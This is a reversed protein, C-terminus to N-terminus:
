VVPAMVKAWHMSSRTRWRAAFGEAEDSWEFERELVRGQGNGYRVLWNLRM